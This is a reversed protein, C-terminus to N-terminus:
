VAAAALQEQLEEQLAELALRLREGPAQLCEGDGSRRCADELAECAELLTRAGIMRAAGKIRHAHEALRTRDGERLLIALRQLDQRNSGLLTELLERLREPRGGGLSSLADADYLGRPQAADRGFSTALYNRLTELGLPKFLCDDMGADRCRQVEDPEADATYGLILIPARRECREQIRIRRALQYGNLRPMNCDSILVEFREDAWLELAVQGDEAEAVRHGLFELQQRLLVRNPPYDDAILIHLRRSPEMSAALPDQGSEPMKPGCQRLLLDLSVRTGKGPESHMEVDGGMLDVLKRCIALGLGTGGQVTRGKAVQIFPQFLRAQDAPAIGIGSDEVAVRVIARGEDLSREQLRITVQGRETFKIANSVLNSLVQKFRLPDILVDRGPADDLEVVLRLGKQRALGEFMRRVSEVVHRLRVREPTLTLHGSEIKAVDLIDGILLQLSGAAEYAVELSARERQEPALRQLVLELIGIVANMPTRIEHSMTALFVSKARNAEDAQRMAERLQRALRERETIDIWGNMLGLVRGQRDRYPTVWHHIELLQGGIRVAMDTFSATGGRAVALCQQHMLRAKSGEVWDSDTLLTGRAQERTMRLSELYNRNCALLRGDLTRISVPYPIGDVLAQKLALRGSLDAETRQWRRLKLQLVTNWGLCGVCVLCAVLLGLVLSSPSPSRLGDAAQHLPAEVVADAGEPCDPAPIRLLSSYEGATARAPVAYGAMCAFVLFLGLMCASRKQFKM